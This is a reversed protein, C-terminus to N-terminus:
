CSASATPPCGFASKSVCTQATMQSSLPVILPSEQGVPLTLTLYLLVPGAQPLLLPGHPHGPPFCRTLGPWPNLAERRLWAERRAASSFVENPLWSADRSQGPEQRDCPEAQLTGRQERHQVKDRSKPMNQPQGLCCSAQSTGSSNQPTPIWCRPRSTRLVHTQTGAM